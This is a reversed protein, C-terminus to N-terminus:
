YILLLVISFVALYGIILVRWMIQAKRMEMFNFAVGIFKLLALSLVLPVLYQGAFTSSLGALVTLVMLLSWTIINNRTM